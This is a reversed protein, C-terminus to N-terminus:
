ILDSLVRGLAKREFINQALVEAQEPNYGLAAFTARPNIPRSSGRPDVWEPLHEHTYEVLEFRKMHGFQQWVEDLIEIDATSLQDLEEPTFDAHTLAVEHNECPYIMDRWAPSDTQGTILNLTQSLVPGHPMSYHNDASMSEGYRSMSERDALYLLKLLKLYSMRGGRRILFFAAMQAIKQETFIM